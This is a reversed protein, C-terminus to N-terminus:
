VLKERKPESPARYFDICRRITEANSLGTAKKYITLWEKQQLSICITIRPYIERKKTM